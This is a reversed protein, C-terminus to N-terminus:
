PVSYKMRGCTKRVSTVLPKVTYSEVTKDGCGPLLVGFASIVGVSLTVAAVTRINQMVPSSLRVYSKKM